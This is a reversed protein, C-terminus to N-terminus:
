LEPLCEGTGLAALGARDGDAFGTVARRTEPYMLQTDDDVHALGVLHGLEHLVVAQVTAAGDRGALIAPAQGGDLTVTGTVYVRPGDDLSVATSGAEGVIDGALAANEAETQWGILVPAWRDGYRDSQFPARAGASPEDTYGDYVFRLGTLESIRAVADHVLPETGPPAGDPRLVYHIPRCPDYAVPTSGDAQLSVFGHTGGAPPVPAPTGLATTAGSPTPRDTPRAPSPAVVGPEAVGAEASGPWERVDPLVLAAAAAAALVPVAWWGRRRRGPQASPRQGPLPSAGTAEDVVWQPVRGSPSSPLPAAGDRPEQPHMDTM